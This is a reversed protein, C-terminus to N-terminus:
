VPVPQVGYRRGPKGHMFVPPKEVGWRGCASCPKCWPPMYSSLFGTCGLGPGVGLEMGELKVVTDGYVGQNDLIVDAYDLLRKGSSHRSPQSLSFEVCTKRSLRIAMNKLKALGDRDAGRQPRLEFDGLFRGPPRAHSQGYLVEGIGELREMYASKGPM